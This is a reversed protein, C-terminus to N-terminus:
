QLVPKDQELKIFPIVTARFFIIHKSKETKCYPDCIIKDDIGNSLVIGQEPHKIRKNNDKEANVLYVLDDNILFFGQKFIRHKDNANSKKEIIPEFSKHLGKIHKM